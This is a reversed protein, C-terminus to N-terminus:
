VLTWTKVPKLDFVKRMMFMDMLDPSKGGLIVKMQDKPIIRLKGDADKKDRKIAKRETIFRQKITQKDDYMAYAVHKSVRYKGMNVDDGSKYYCQTKLNQYNEKNIPSGNNNFEVAGKIFGDVFSGVGDNDFAINKNQVKHKEAMSKIGDIVEKGDSKGMILMDVLEYGYWVGVIFKDSGKMAIDATIYRGEKEVQFVDEFMGLFSGYEYIDDETVVAKWNGRLLQSQEQEGMAALSGLYGPDAKLLEKNDYISGAVFTLSKVFHEPAMGSDGILTQLAYWGKEIVEEKTDGWIYNGGEKMFWRIKSDREKIPFGDEGIWWSILNAVWSDPEPNCTARMYPKVGCMTRNRSLLYFFQTETFHTLEDFGIFPIQAGQYTLKDKEYELHKFQLNCGSRFKWELSSERPTAGVLPYLTESTDWLGGENTIQPTNKRFIIGGFKSNKVHRLFEMLLVFTKGAGAAGGMIAIDASTSLANEQFGPQPYIGALQGM